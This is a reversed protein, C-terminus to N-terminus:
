GQVRIRGNPLLTAQFSWREGPVDRLTGTLTFRLTHGFDGADVYVVKVDLLRPEFQETCAKLRRRLLEAGGPLSHLLEAPDPMGYDPQARSHQERSVFIRQLNDVISQRLRARDLSMSAGRGTDGQRLREFLTENQLPM